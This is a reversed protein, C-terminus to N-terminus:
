ILAQTPNYERLQKLSIKMIKPSLMTEDVVLATSKLLKEDSFIVRSIPFTETLLYWILHDLLYM